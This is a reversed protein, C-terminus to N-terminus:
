KINQQTQITNVLQWRSFESTEVLRSYTDKLNFLLETLVINEFTELPTGDRSHYIIEIQKKVKGPLNVEYKALPKFFLTWLQYFQEASIYRDLSSSNMSNTSRNDSSSLTSTRLQSIHEYLLFNELSFEKECFSKFLEVFHQDKLHLEIDTQIKQSTSEIPRRKRKLFKWCEILIATMGGLCYIFIFSIFSCIGLCYDAWEQGILNFIIILILSTLIIFFSIIDLRLFYPDEFTFFHLLGKEKILKRNNFIDISMFVIGLICGIIGQLLYIVNVGFLVNSEYVNVVAYPILIALWFLVHLIACVLTALVGFWESSLIRHIKVQKDTSNSLFRYLYRLYYFRVLTSGYIGIVFATIGITVISRLTNSVQQMFISFFISAVILCLPILYPVLLRRKISKTNFTAALLLLQLCGFTIQLLKEIEYAIVTGPVGDNCSYFSLTSKEFCYLVNLDILNNMSLNKVSEFQKIITFNSTEVEEIKLDCGNFLRKIFTQKLLDLKGLGFRNSLILENFTRYGITTKRKSKELLPGFYETSITDEILAFKSTENLTGVQIPMSMEDIFNLDSWLLLRESNELSPMRLLVDQLTSLPVVFSDFNLAPHGFFADVYISTVLTVIPIITEQHIENYRDLQFQFLDSLDRHVMVKRGNLYKITSCESGQKNVCFAIM